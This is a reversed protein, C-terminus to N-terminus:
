SLCAIEPAQWAQQYARPVCLSRYLLLLQWILLSLSVGWFSWRLRINGYIEPDLSFLVLCLTLFFPLKFASLMHFRNDDTSM